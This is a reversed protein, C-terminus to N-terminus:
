RWKGMSQAYFNADNQIQHHKLASLSCPPKHSTHSQLLAQVQSIGVSAVHSSVLCLSHPSTFKPGESWFIRGFFIRTSARVHTGSFCLSPLYLPIWCSGHEIRPEFVGRIVASYKWVEPSGCTCKYDAKGGCPLINYLTINYLLFM